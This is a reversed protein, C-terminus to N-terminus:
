FLVSTGMSFEINSNRRRADDSGSEFRYSRCEWRMALTKRVFFRTGGGFNVSPETRGRLISSGVGGSVYPVIQRGPM